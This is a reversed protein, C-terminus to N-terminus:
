IRLKISSNEKSNVMEFQAVLKDIAHTSKFRDNIITNSNISCIQETLVSITKKFKSLYENLLMQLNPDSKKMQAYISEIIKHLQKKPNEYQTKRIQNLSDSLIMFQHFTGMLPQKNEYTKVLYNIKNQFFLQERCYSLPKSIEYPCFDRKFYGQMFKHKIFLDLESVILNSIIDMIEESETKSKPKLNFWLNNITNELQLLLVKEPLAQPSFINVISDIVFQFRYKDQFFNLCSPMGLKQIQLALQHILTNIKDNGIKPSLQNIKSNLRDIYFSFQDKPVAQQYYDKILALANYIMLKADHNQDINSQM